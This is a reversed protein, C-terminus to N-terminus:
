EVVSSKFMQLITKQKSPLSCIDNADSTNVVCNLVKGGKTSHSKMRVRTPSQWNENCSGRRSKRHNTEAQNKPVKSDKAVKSSGKRSPSDKVFQPPKTRLLYEDPSGKQRNLTREEKNIRKQLQLALLRDQEEQMRREHLEQEFAKQKQLNFDNIQEGQDELSELITRRKKGPMCLDVVAEAPAELSKRKPTEKANQLGEPKEEDSHGTVKILDCVESKHDSMVSDTASQTGACTEASNELNISEVQTLSGSDTEIRGYERKSRCLVTRSGEGETIRHLVHPVEDGPCNPGPTEEQKIAATEGSASAGFYNMCSELFLDKPSSDKIVGTLQPSLTPMEEQEDQWASGSGENVTTEQLFPLSVSGSDSRGREAARSFSASGLTHHLKPSLYKQIDGSNSPKNKMRCLNAPSMEPSPSGIPSPSSPVRGKSHDNLSNSLQWALEEDQKLQKEMERRREEALRNEEEEEALLRQIYEESAKNEEQEHARREAEVKSIEAEYEQRLEGPKSLQHQPHPVCIEEELDQGNIRRECEEPYNKQIKEWLEWNILTNRRANYRAWSSVRRRCFPCCLSAKEVTLQFCSNCLTHNCPLTVPEVFIEMCIQCLCDSLSLPAELKKSM